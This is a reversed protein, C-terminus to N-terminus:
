WIYHEERFSLYNGTKGQIIFHDLLRLGVIDCAEKLSETAEIDYDSPHLTGGPHNHAVIISDANMMLAKRIIDRHSFHVADMSGGSTEFVGTIRGSHNLCLTVFVEEAESKLDLIDAFIHGASTTNNVCNEKETLKYNKIPEMFFLDSNPDLKPKWSTIFM